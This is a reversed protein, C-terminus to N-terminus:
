GSCESDRGFLGPLSFHAAVHVAGPERVDIRTWDGAREVCGDGGTVTWYPTYHIRVLYRGPRPAALEFSQPGLTELGPDGTRGGKSAPLILDLM